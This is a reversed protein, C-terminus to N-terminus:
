LTLFKKFTNFKYVIFISIYKKVMIQNMLKQIPLIIGIINGICKIHKGYSM